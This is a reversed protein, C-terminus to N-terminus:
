QSTSLWSMTAQLPLKNSKLAYDRQMNTENLKIGVKRPQATLVVNEMIVEVELMNEM